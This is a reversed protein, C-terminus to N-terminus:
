ATVAHLWAKLWPWVYTVFVWAAGALMAGVFAGVILLAGVFGDLSNGYM